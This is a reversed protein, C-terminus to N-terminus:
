NASNFMLNRHRKHLQVHALSSYRMKLGLTMPPPLIM